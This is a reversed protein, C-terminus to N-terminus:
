KKTLQVLSLVHVFIASPMFFSPLLFFPYKFFANQIMPADSGWIQPWYFSTLFTFAASGVVLIGIINWAILVRKSYNKKMAYFAVPIASIGFLIDYNHGEFTPIVPLIGAKYTYYFLIEIVARFSQYAIPIFIPIAKLIENKNYRIFIFATLMFLPLIVMIPMRPPMNSDEYFGSASVLYHIFFWVAFAAFILLTKKVRKTKSIGVENMALNFHYLIFSFLFIFLLLYALELM